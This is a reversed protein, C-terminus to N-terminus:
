SSQGREVQAWVRTPLGWLHVFGRAADHDFGDGDAEYTALDPRYLARRSRRGTPQCSRPGFALRVEGTVAQQTAAMFADLAGKLPSFWLGDYVLEAWRLELRLKERALDRDLTLDELDRHAALVALAGPLEYVERSKIGVRRNEIMDLRGFGFAGGVRNLHTVVEAVGAPRGDVSVPVGHEFGVVVEVPAEDATATTTLEWADEPVQTWPDELIGAEIARGWLNQDISYPRDVSIWGIDLGHKEAYGIAEPRSMAWERVPALVELDPALAAFGVEFRVQDNGKGTCGHALTTAGAQRAQDVVLQVILPRSLASVLPYKGEYLANAAIAPVLFETAFRERADVVVADAAGATRARAAAGALDEGQGVDVLVAIVERGLEHALRHVVVTTDLGGSYALAVPGPRNTMAPPPGNTM